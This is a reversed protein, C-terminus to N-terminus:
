HIQFAIKIDVYWLTNPVRVLMMSSAKEYFYIKAGFQKQMFHEVTSTQCPVLQTYISQFLLFASYNLMKKLTLKQLFKFTSGQKIESKGSDQSIM